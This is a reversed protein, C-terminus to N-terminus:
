DSRKLSVLAVGRARRAAQEIRAEARERDDKKPTRQKPAGCAGARLMSWAARQRPSRNSRFFAVDDATFAIREFADRDIDFHIFQERLEELRALTVSGGLEAILQEMVVLRSGVNKSIPAGLSALSTSLLVHDPADALRQAIKEIM